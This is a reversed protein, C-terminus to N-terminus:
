LKSIYRLKFIQFTMLMGHMSGQIEGTINLAYCQVITIQLMQLPYVTGLTVYSTLLTVQM